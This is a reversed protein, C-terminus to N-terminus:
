AAQIFLRELAIIEEKNWAEGIARRDLDSAKLGMAQALNLAEADGLVGRREDIFENNSEVSDRIAQRIDEQDTINELRFNGAKDTFRSGAGREFPANPAAPVESKVVTSAKGQGPSPRAGEAVGESGGAGVTGPKASGGGEPAPPGAENGHDPPEQSGSS